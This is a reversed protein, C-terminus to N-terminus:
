YLVMVGVAEDLWTVRSWVDYTTGSLNAYGAHIGYATGGYYWPGGSDGGNAKDSDMRVLNCHNYGDYSVCLYTDAVKNCQAGTSHGFRCLTQGHQPNAFGTTDRTANFNYYFDDSETGSVTRWELDGYTGRHRKVVSTSLESAGNYNEYTLSLNGESCHAATAVGTSGSMTRVSFGGTCWLADYGVKEIRGGGFAEGDGGASPDVRVALPWAKARNPLGDMLMDVLARAEISGPAVAQRPRVRVDVTGSSRDFSTVTGDFLDDRAAVSLHVEEIRAGIDRASLGTGGAVSVTAQDFAGVIRAAEPPVKGAFSIRAQRGPGDLIEGGAFGDPFQEELATAMLAFDNQWGVANVADELKVGEDEAIRALDILEDSSPVPGLMPEAHASPPLTLAGFVLAAVSSAGVMAASLTKNM